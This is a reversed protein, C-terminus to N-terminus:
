KLLILKFTRSFDGSRIQCFYLGSALQRGTDDRGNWQATYEGANQKASVLQNVQRGSQDFIKIIVKNNEPITYRITTTPNFPNPFTVLDFSRLTNPIREEHIGLLIDGASVSFNITDTTADFQIQLQYDGDVITSDTDNIGYWRIRYLGATKVTDSHRVIENGYVDNILFHLSDPGTVGFEFPTPEVM